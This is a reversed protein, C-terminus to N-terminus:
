AAFRTAGEHISSGPIIDHFQNTLIMKWGKTLKEQAALSLSGAGMAAMATMWEARRYLLEMKRNMRKNYAQSTYTGRHYELYLEGDWTNVYQDTNEVNEKLKRFYDGATSTKLNPLGPIKDIRRRAELLDRNVGGGGDGYGYSILLDKNMAKESYAEWVGKVTKATLLGNYTYFWSDPGNWSEPTTIFHTLVETGDMGKWHFTDHPMRNFQNWSIKTTMFVDIGSKKLIQPLAWSYGFVDPLWLYEVDKGFEEKLFRSGILLQRTLSEGSTLNCDAEVWMGGDAEWRGEKVRKRIEEFIEPFDEKIYEYIQPQTQLFIYEPFMEMMRLVTSFSRSAKEHTYKLRWLWAMDIHTHGVCYVNVPSHKEM